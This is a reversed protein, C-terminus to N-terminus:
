ESTCDLTTCSETPTEGLQMRGDATLTPGPECTWYAYRASTLIRVQTDPAADSCRQPSRTGAFNRLRNAAHSVFHTFTISPLTSENEKGDQKKDGENEDTQGDCSRFHGLVNLAIFLGLEIM